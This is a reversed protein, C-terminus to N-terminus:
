EEDRGLHRLALQTITTSLRGQLQASSPWDWYTTCGSSEGDEGLLELHVCIGYIRGSHKELMEELFERCWHEPDGGIRTISAERV